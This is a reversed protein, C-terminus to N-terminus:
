KKVFIVFNAPEAKWIYMEKWMNAAAAACKLFTAKTEPFSHHANKKLIKLM